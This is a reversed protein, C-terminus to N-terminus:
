PNLASNIVFAAVCTVICVPAGRWWGSNRMLRILEGTQVVCVAYNARREVSTLVGPTMREADDLRCPFRSQISISRSM